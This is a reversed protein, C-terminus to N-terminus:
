PTWGSASRSGAGPRWWPSTARAKWARFDVAENSGRQVNYGERRFAQELLLAFQPWALTSLAAGTRLVQASSPLNRQRLAALEAIVAFPLGFVVGVAKYSAPRLAAAVGGLMLAILLSIWWPAQLLVAFLSKEAMQLRM